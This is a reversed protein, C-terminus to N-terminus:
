RVTGELVYNVSLERAIERIDKNTRKYQVTSTRAIVGLREPQLRGLQSIMEDTLGDSFLEQDPDGSLNEFPLVALMIRGSPSKAASVSRECSFYFAASAGLILIVAAAVAVRPRRASNPQGSCRRLQEALDQLGPRAAPEFALMSKLLSRLRSPVHAARLQEIPLTDSGQARQI